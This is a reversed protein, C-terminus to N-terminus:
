KILAEIDKEIQDSFGYYEKQIIGNKDILFYRPFSNVNFMEKTEKDVILNL